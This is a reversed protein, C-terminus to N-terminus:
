PPGPLSRRGPESPSSSPQSARPHESPGTEVLGRSVVARHTDAWWAWVPTIWLLLSVWGIVTTNTPPSGGLSALYMLVLFGAFSWWAYRGTRDLPHTGRSYLAVGAVFMLGEIVITAIPSNWLGM